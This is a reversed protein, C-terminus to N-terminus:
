SVVFFEEESRVQCDVIYLLEGSFVGFIDNGYSKVHAFGEDKWIEVVYASSEIVVDDFDGSSYGYTLTFGSEAELVLVGGWESRELPLSLMPLIWKQAIWAAGDKEFENGWIKPVFDSIGDNIGQAM